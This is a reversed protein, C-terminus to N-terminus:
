FIKAPLALELTLLNSPNMGPKVLLLEVFSKIM